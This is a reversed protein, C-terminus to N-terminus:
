LFDPHKSGPHSLAHSCGMEQEGREEVCEEGSVICRLAFSGSLLWAVGSLNVASLSATPLTAVHSKRDVRRSHLMVKVERKTHSGWSHIRDVKARLHDLCTESSALGRRVESAAAKPENTHSM